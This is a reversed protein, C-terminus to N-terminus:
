WVSFLDYMLNTKLIKSPSTSFLKVNDLDQHPFFITTMTTLGDDAFLEISSHDIFIHLSITNSKSIRPATEMVAFPPHFNNSGANKRDIFFQNTSDNYGIRLNDGMENSLLIGAQENQLDIKNLSLKIELLGNTALNDNSLKMPTKSKRLEKLAPIPINKIYYESDQKYLQLIRPLTMASRWKETPVVKAYQWNSMWGIFLKKDGTTNSWTVGAYNDTGYDLWKVTDKSQLPTFSKGDFDGVFYQTSSGGNPGGNGISVLLVWKTEKGDATNLKFLDPCEWVGGHSGSNEGFSGTYEWEKLNKSRYFEVSNGVALTVIWYGSSNHWFVKPDRFDKNGPNKIVPNGTYKIWNRGADNSYAIGQTQFNNTGAKEGAMNHYTFVAVLPTENGKQLGSTNKVDAVVSGSFIYGLSDPYLAIPLHKWHLLDNSVAHGWHMPGWVSSDPYFQYFLHYDGKYYVLGNPDNMWHEKPSFHFQPRYQEKYFNDQAQLSFILNLFLLSSIIKKSFHPM